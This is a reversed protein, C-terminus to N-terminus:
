ILAMKQQTVARDKHTKRKQRQFSLLVFHGDLVSTTETKYTSSQKRIKYSKQSLFIAEEVFHNTGEIVWGSGKQSWAEIEAKVQDIFSNFANNIMAENNRNLIVPEKQKFYHEMYQTENNRVISFKVLLGFQTKVNTLSAIENEILDTFRTKTKQAFKLLDAKYPYSEPVTMKWVRLWESFNNRLLEFEVYRDRAARVPELSRKQRQNEEEPISGYFLELVDSSFRSAAM